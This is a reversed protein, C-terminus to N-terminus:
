RRRVIMGQSTYGPYKKYISPATVFHYGAFDPDYTFDPIDGELNQDIPVTSVVDYISINSSVSVNDDKQQLLKVINSAVRIANKAYNYRPCELGIGGNGFSGVLSTPDNSYPIIVAERSVSLIDMVDQTRNGLCEGPIIPVIGHTTPSTHIDIVHTLGESKFIDKIYAAIGVEYSNAADLTESGFSRNLDTDIFRVGKQIAQTNAILLAVNEGSQSEVEKHVMRGFEYEDGHTGAVICLNIESM